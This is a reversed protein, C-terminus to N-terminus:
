NWYINAFKRMERKFHKILEMQMEKDETERIKTEEIFNCIKMMLQQTREQYHEWKVVRNLANHQHILLNRLQNFERLPKHWKEEILQNLICWHIYRGLTWNEILEINIKKEFILKLFLIYELDASINLLASKIDGSNILQRLDPYRITAM